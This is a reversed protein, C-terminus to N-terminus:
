ITYGDKYLHQNEKFWNITETLGQELTLEQKWNTYSKLKTNDCLLREVESNIPRIREQDEQIDVEVNMLDAILKILKGISIDRGSGINTCEGILSDCEAIKIFGNVTNSVFNFDRTPKISGVKINFNNNLIQTIITPIIARTSQRPGYTNFPRVITVPLNFSNYFSLTLNDAGIKTASYPSQPQLPHGEDIPVYKATGYVESTSTCIVRETNLEKAVQLVNYTGEINTKVYALPSEYSYPISILAALHFVVDIDKMANKVSDFDRIDGKHYEIDFLHKLKVDKNL